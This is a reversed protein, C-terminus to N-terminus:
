LAPFPLADLDRLDPRRMTRRVEGDVRYALGSIDEYATATKGALRDMLELLTAEGEGLLIFDAGRGLYDEAHDTADAGCLIVTCGRQRAMEIMTFSAQRMRLLCMKSLYNFNDEFLVAFAPLNTVLAQDWEDESAALMADFLAVDIAKSACIVPPM